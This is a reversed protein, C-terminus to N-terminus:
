KIDFLADPLATNLERNIFHLTTNDGSKENMVITTVSYDKKDIIVDINDFFEKLGKTIPSLEVKYSNKGEYPSTTFDASNFVTGQVCNVIIKNIQQFIKNSKLSVRSEKQGDKIYMNDKNLIMLYEYPKDFEMRLMNEKKFWFKGKSTIKESLMSLNKEQVFDSKITVTKKAIESFQEKFKELEKADTIPSYVAQAKVVHGSIVIFLILILKRM